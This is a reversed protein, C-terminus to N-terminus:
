TEKLLAEVCFTVEDLLSLFECKAMGSGSPCQNSTKKKKKKVFEFLFPVRNLVLISGPM